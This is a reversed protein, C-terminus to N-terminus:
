IYGLWIVGSHIGEWAAAREEDKLASYLQSQESQAQTLSDSAMNMLRIQCCRCNLMCYVTLQQPRSSTTVQFWENSHYANLFEHFDVQVCLPMSGQVNLLHVLYLTGNLAPFIPSEVVRVAGRWERVAGRM